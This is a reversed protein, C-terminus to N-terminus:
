LLAYPYICVTVSSCRGRGQKELTACESGIKWKGRIWRVPFLICTKRTIYLLSRNAQERHSPPRSLWDYYGSRSVRLIRCLHAIHHHRQQDKIFQYKVRIGQCLVARGNKLIAVEEKLRENERKLSTLEADKGSQRGFGPFADAGKTNIQKQWKYLRNHPIGLERAIEAAPRDGKELLRVAEQKFTKTFTKRKSQM